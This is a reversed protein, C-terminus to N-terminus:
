RLRRRLALWGIALLLATSPEPIVDVRELRINDIVSGLASRVGTPGGFQLRDFPDPRAAIHWTVTSDVGPLGTANDVGDRFLDLVLTVFDVGIEASYRHWGQGVDNPSVLANSDPGDLSPDLPFYQWGPQSLLPVSSPDFGFVRYAFGTPPIPDGTPNTPDFTPANFRGLEIVNVGLPAVTSRLGVTTRKNNLGDDFIDASLKISQTPTPTLFDLEPQAAGAYVNLADRIYVAKGELNPPFDNPSPVNASIDPILVGLQLDDPPLNMPNAPRWVAEFSAQDNYSDFREDVLVPSPELALALDPTAALSVILWACRAICRNLKM